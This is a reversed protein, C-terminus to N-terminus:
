ISLDGKLEGEEKDKSRKHVCVPSNDDVSQTQPCCNWGPKIYPKNCIAAPSYAQTSVVCLKDRLENHRATILGGTKCDLAHKLGFKRGCGDCYSPLDATGYKAM